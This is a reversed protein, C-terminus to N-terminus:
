LAAVNAARKQADAAAGMQMRQQRAQHDAARPGADQADLPENLVRERDKEANRAQKQATEQAKQQADQEIQLAELAKERRRGALAKDSDAVRMRRMVTDAEIQVLRVPELAARRREKAKGRCANVFFAAGAQEDQAYRLEIRANESAAQEQAGVAAEVTGISGAPYRTSLTTAADQAVTCHAFLALLGGTLWRSLLRNNLIPLMRYMNLLCNM